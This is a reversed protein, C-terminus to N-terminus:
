ALCNAMGSGWSSQVTHPLSCECCVGVGTVLGIITGALLSAVVLACRARRRRFQKGRRGGASEAWSRWCVTHYAEGV